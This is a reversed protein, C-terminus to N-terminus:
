KGMFFRVFGHITTARGIAAISETLPIHKPCVKVCNQANGCDNIGGPGFMADLREKKLQKGTEHLNFLRTQSIAAPGIFAADWKSEDPELNYQPCAEVCCGCSMCESLSYRTAQTEPSEKPGAGLSYTGDIPVWARVRRLGAFMRERDVWLDRIVPFKSMPELTIEDGERPAYEDVLCSCSQRVTGNILMTCAGCVEELCGSDWAVPTTQKGDATRPTRAIQQLCSIVNAGPEPTVSFTEWRVPKGPGECRKIRFRITRGPTPQPTRTKANSTPAHSTPANSIM